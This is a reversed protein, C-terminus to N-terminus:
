YKGLECIIFKLFSRICVIKVELKGLLAAGKLMPHLFHIKM